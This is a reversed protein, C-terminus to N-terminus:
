TTSRPPNQFAPSSTQGMDEVLAGRTSASLPTSAKYAPHDIIIAAPRSLDGLALAQEATLPFRIFQVSSVRAENWQTQDFVAPAAPCGELAIHVCSHLGGLAHLARDREAPDTYELLLTASLSDAAPLLANYTMLEHALGAETQIGEVRAMEQIQWQITLHNEFLFMMHDGVLVRRAHKAAIVAQELRPRAAKFDVISLIDGASLTM